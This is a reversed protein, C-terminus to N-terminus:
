EVCTREWNPGVASIDEPIHARSRNPSMFATIYWDPAKVGGSHALFNGFGGLESIGM